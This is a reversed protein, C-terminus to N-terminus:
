YASQRSEEHKRLAEISPKLQPNERLVERFQAEAAEPLNQRLYVEGLKLNSIGKERNSTAHSIAAQFCDAARDFDGRVTHVGGLMAYGESCAPNRKLLAELRGIAEDNRGFNALMVASRLQSIRDNPVAAAINQVREFLTYLWSRDEIGEPLITMGILTRTYRRELQDKASKSLRPGMTEHLMLWGIALVLPSWKLLHPVGKATIKRGSDSTTEHRVGLSAQTAQERVKWIFGDYYYHLLTSTGLLANMVTVVTGNEVFTPILGMAGYAAILGLYIFVMGRRFLYRMLGGIEPRSSVRRCNYFWVITLYQVDHCIDFLAVGLIVNELYGIAFWWAGIGTALLLLKIPNPKPGTQWQVVYNVTFGVLTLLSICLCTWRFISFTMPSILPGGLAYWSNLLAAIRSDSFVEVTVFGCFCVRWDWRATASSISGVKADYIRVFGYLQMLGHWTAWLVLVFPFFDRHYFSLPFYALFLLPPAILFRWRFRQFLETEGYARILGPLHHGLAFFATVVLSITEAKVGFPTHLVLVAPIVLLPTLIILLQDLWSNIIWSQSVSSAPQSPRAPVVSM